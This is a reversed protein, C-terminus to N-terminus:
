NIYHKCKVASANVFKLEMPTSDKLKKLSAFINYKQM